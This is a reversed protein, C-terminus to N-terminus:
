IVTLMAAITPTSGVVNSFVARYRNGNLGKATQFSLTASVAGPLNAFTTGGDTSVKWQIGPGPTGSGSATFTVQQGANVFGNNLNSSLDHVAIGNGVDAGSGGLLTSYGLKSGDAAIEAVLADTAGGGYTSQAAGATIPFRNTGGTTSGTVYALGSLDSVSIANGVDDGSGGLFTSYILSSGTVSVSTVFTDTAGGGFSTKFAGATTPFATAGGTTSGTVLINHTGNSDFAAVGNGVDNGSGGLYTSFVM